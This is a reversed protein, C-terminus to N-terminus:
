RCLCFVVVNGEPELGTEIRNVVAGGPAGPLAINKPGLRHTFSRPEPESKM